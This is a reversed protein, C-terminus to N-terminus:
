YRFGVLADIDVTDLDGTFRIQHVTGGTGPNRHHIKIGILVAQFGRHAPVLFFALEVNLAFLLFNGEAEMM